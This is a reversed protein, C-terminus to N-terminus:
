GPKNVDKVAGAMVEGEVTTVAVPQGEAEGRFMSSMANVNRLDDELQQILFKQEKVTSATNQYEKQLTSYKETNLHILDM